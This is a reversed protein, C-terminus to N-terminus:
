RRLRLNTLGGDVTLCTGTVSGADPSALACVAQAV